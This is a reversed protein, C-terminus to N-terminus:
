NLLVIVKKQSGFSLLVTRPHYLLFILSYNSTVIPKTRLIFEIIDIHYKIIKSYVYM